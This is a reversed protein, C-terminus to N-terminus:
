KDEKKRRALGLGFVGAVTALMAGVISTNEKTEGTQPLTATKPTSINAKSQSAKNASVSGEAKADVGDLALKAAKLENVLDQVTALNADIGNKSVLEAAVALLNDYKGKLDTSANTYKSTGKIQDSLAIEQRLQAMAADVTKAEALVQEVLQPTTANDVNKNFAAKQADNLNELGNIVEQAVTKQNALKDDGNLKTKANAIAEEAAKVAASDENTGSAKDLIAQADAVAKDYAAKADEDANTYNVESKVSEAANAANKLNSMDTDLGTATGQATTVDAVSSAKDVAEKAAAKQADNLNELKDIADKAATRANDLNTSGDLGAKAAEVAKKAAVVANADANTGSAKDTIAQAAAVADDYAKKAAESADTYNESAKTADVDAVSNSLDSMKGDLSTATNQAATVGDPTTASDVAQKAAAKQADNLNELKDIADKASTKFGDINAINQDGDLDAIAKELAVKAADIDAQSTSHQAYATAANKQATDFAARKDASAYKYNNSYKTSQSGRFTTFLADADTVEVNFEQSQVKTTGGYTWSTLGGNYTGQITAKQNGVNSTNPAKGWTVLPIQGANTVYDGVKLTDKKRVVIGAKAADTLIPADAVEIVINKVLNNSTKTTNVSTVLSVYGEDNNPLDPQATDAATAGPLVINDNTLVYDAGSTTNKTVLYITYNVGTTDLDI